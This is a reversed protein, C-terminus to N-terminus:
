PRADTASGANPHTSAVVDAAHERVPVGAARASRYLMTTAERGGFSNRTMLVGQAQAIVERAALADAIRVTLESDAIGVAGADTLIGSVQSAFLAALEQQPTGFARASNSYINLAGLTGDSTTLPTSLISAIGEEIARPVFAPWRKEDALSESHFWRGEAAAALCPGEGTEYQHDDMRKITNNTSAVTQLQGHRQLSLSVGDAGDVTAKALATVLHLAADIVQDSAPTSLFRRVEHLRDVGSYRDATGDGVPQEAGLAAGSLTENESPESELQVLSGVGTIDLVRRVAASPNRLALRGDRQQMSNSLGAIVGLGAAGMFSLKTFDLVLDAHGMAVVATLVASLPPATSTDLEGRVGIVVRDSEIGVTVLFPEIPEPATRMSPHDAGNATM